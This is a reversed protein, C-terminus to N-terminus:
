AAGIVPEMEILPPASSSVPETLVAVLSAPHSLPAPAFGVTTLREPSKAVNTGTPAETVIFAGQVKVEPGSAARQLTPPNVNLRSTDEMTMGLTLPNRATLPVPVIVPFPKLGVGPWHLNEVWFGGALLTNEKEAEVVALEGLGPGVGQFTSQSTGWASSLRGWALADPVVREVMFGGSSNINGHANEKVVDGSNKSRGCGLSRLNRLHACIFTQASFIQAMQPKIWFQMTKAHKVCTEEGIGDTGDM